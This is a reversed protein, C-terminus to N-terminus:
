VFMSVCACYDAREEVVEGELGGVGGRCGDCVGTCKRVLGDVRCIVIV